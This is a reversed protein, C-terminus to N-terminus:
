KAASQMKKEVDKIQKDLWRIHKKICSIVAKNLSKDLRNNERTRDNILQNRRTSLMQLEESVNDHYDKTNPKFVSAFHCLVRADISDTKALRGTAKAFDRVKNPHAVHIPLGKAKFTSVLLKEYGGTAECVISKISFNSLSKIIGKIGNDTNEVSFTKGDDISVDLQFKGVDIGVFHEM